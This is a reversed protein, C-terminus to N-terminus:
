GFTPRWGLRRLADIVDYLPLGLVNTYDGDIRAILNAGLGEVAYGGACYSGEGTAVYADLEEDTLDRRFTIRSEVTLRIAADGRLVVVGTTLTHTKGRLERLRARHDEPDRPKGFTRGRFHAVQDAGIVIEGPVARAKAEARAMALAVAGDATIQEEDVKPSVASFVIGAARLLAIRASSTSALVVDPM